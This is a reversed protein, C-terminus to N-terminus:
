YSLTTEDSILEEITPKHDSGVTAWTMQIEALALYTSCGIEEASNRILIANTRDAGKLMNWRLSHESYEHDLFYALVRPRIEHNLNVNEQLNVNLDLYPDLNKDKDFYEKIAEKLKPSTNKRDDDEDHSTDLVLNYTLAIRYGQKVKEVEHTCDPYFAIIKAIDVNSNINESSFSHSKKGHTIVLNGGIHPSPLIIVLSAIMNELKESDQHKDFFQGEKYILMNHLHPTVVNNKSLGLSARIKNLICDLAAQSIKVQIKDSSIEYTSRVTENLLTEERLGYKALSAIDLLKNISEENLPLKIHGINGERIDIDTLKIQGEHFFQPSSAKSGETILTSIIKQFAPHTMDNKRNM